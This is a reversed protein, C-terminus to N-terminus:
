RRTRASRPPRARHRHHSGPEPVVIRDSIRMVMPMDHEVLLVTIGRDRLVAPDAGHVRPRSPNPRVAPEDLLLLKPAAVAAIAISSGESSAMLWRRPRPLRRARRPRRLGLMARAEDRLARKRGGRRPLRLLSRGAPTAVGTCRRDACERLVTCGAFVSSSSSAACWVAPPSANPSRPRHHGPRRLRHARRDPAHLRHHRQLRHDQRRREPRDPQGGPGEPVAFSLCRCHRGARPRIHVALNELRSCRRTMRPREVCAPCRRPVIGSRAPVHVFLIM